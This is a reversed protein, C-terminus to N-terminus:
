TAPVPVADVVVTTKLIYSFANDTYFDTSFLAVHNDTIDNLIAYYTVTIDAALYRDEIWDALLKALGYTADNLISNFTVSPDANEITSKLIEFNVEVVQGEVKTFSPKSYSTPLKKSNLRVDIGNNVNAM